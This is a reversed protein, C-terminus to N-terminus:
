RDEKEYILGGVNSIILIDCTLMFTLLLVMEFEMQVLHVLEVFNSLYLM